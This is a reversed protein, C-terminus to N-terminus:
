WSNRPRSPSNGIPSASRLCRGSLTVPACQRPWKTLREPKRMGTNWGNFRCQSGGIPCRARVALPHCFRGTIPRLAPPARSVPDLTDQEGTRAHQLVVASRRNGANCCAPCQQKHTGRMAEHDSTNLIPATPSRFQSSPAGWEERPAMKAQFTGGSNGASKQSKKVALPQRSHGVSPSRKNSVNRVRRVAFFAALGFGRRRGM